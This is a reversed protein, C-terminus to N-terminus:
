LYHTGEPVGVDRRIRKWKSMFRDYQAPRHAPLWIALWEVFSREGTQYDPAGLCYTRDASQLYTDALHHFHMEAWRQFRARAEARRRNQLLIKREEVADLVGRANIMRQARENLTQLQERLEPKTKARLSTHDLIMDVWEGFRTKRQIRRAHITGTAYRQTRCRVHSLEIDAETKSKTTPM